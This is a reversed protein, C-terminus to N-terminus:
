EGPLMLVSFRISGQGNNEINTVGACTQDDSAICYDLKWSLVFPRGAFTEPVPPGKAFLEHTFGIPDGDADDLISAPSLGFCPPTECNGFPSSSVKYAYGYFCANSGCPGLVTFLPDGGGGWELPQGVEFVGVSPDLAGSSGGGHVASIAYSGPPQDEETVCYPVHVTFGSQTVETLWVWTGWTDDPTGTIACTDADVDVGQPMLGTGQGTAKKCSLASGDGGSAYATLDDSPGICPRGLESLDFSLAEGITLTCTADASRSGDTVTWTVEFAGAEEPAGEIEGDFPSYGLGLPLGSVSWDYTGPPGMLKPVHQYQAGVAGPPPTGCDVVLPEGATGGTGGGSGEAEGGTSSGEADVAGTSGTEGAGTDAPASTVGPSGGDDGCGPVGGLASLVCVM